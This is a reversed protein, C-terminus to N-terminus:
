YEIMTKMVRLIIVFEITFGIRNWGRPNNLDLTRQIMGFLFYFYSVLFRAYGGPDREKKKKEEETKKKNKSKKVLM